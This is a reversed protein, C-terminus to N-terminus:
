QAILHLINVCHISFRPVFFLHVHFKISRVPLLYIPPMKHQILQIIQILWNTNLQSFIRSCHNELTKKLYFFFGFLFALFIWSIWENRWDDSHFNTSIYSFAIFSVQILAFFWDFYSLNKLHTEKPQRQTHKYIGYIHLTNAM